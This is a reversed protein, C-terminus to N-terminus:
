RPHCKLDDPDAGIGAAWTGVESPSFNEKEMLDITQNVMSMQGADLQDPEAFSSPYNKRAIVHGCLVQVQEGTDRAFATIRLASGGSVTLLLLRSSLILPEAADPVVLYVDGDVALRRPHPFGAAPEIRSKGLYLAQTGDSLRTRLHKLASGYHLVVGAIAISAAGVAALVVQKPMKM